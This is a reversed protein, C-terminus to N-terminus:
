KETIRYEYFQAGRMRDMIFIRDDHIRISDAFHDIPFATLLVGDADYVELQYMDTKTLDTNGEFAVNMSRKGSEDMSMGVRTGVQEEEKIQRVYNVVWVRGQGDVAIGNSARNMQPMEISVNGGSARRSGKTKPADTDYDLKRDAKWLLEGGPTYKDIRNQFSFAVYVAGDPGIAFQYQNGLRNVLMDKFDKPEGFEKIVEGEPSRVVLLPPPAAEGDMGGPGMMINGGTGQLMFGDPHMRITGLPTRDMSIGKHAIGDPKYVQIRQNGMDPVYIYGQSDIDLSLPFQLEGPGEGQRAFTALYTGDPGFKQIRQNGADLVYINGDRDFAIDAPQHFLINEDDSDLEGINRVFEIALEPNLGWKGDKQNHILKIGDVTEIKQPYLQSAAALLLCLLIVYPKITRTM